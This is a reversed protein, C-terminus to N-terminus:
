QLGCIQNAEQTPNQDEEGGKAFEEPLPTEASQYDAHLQQCNVPEERDLALGAESAWNGLEKSAVAGLISGVETILGLANIGQQWRARTAAM